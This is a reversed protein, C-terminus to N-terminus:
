GLPMLEKELSLLETLRHRKCNCFEGTEVYRVAHICTLLRRCYLNLDLPMKEMGGRKHICGTKGLGLRINKVEQEDSEAATINKVYELFFFHKVRM